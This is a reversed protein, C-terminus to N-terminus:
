LAGYPRGLRDRMTITYAIHQNDPSFALSGISRLRSLDSSTLLQACAPRASVALLMVYAIWVCIRFLRSKSRLLM